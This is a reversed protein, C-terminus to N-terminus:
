PTRYSVGGTWGPRKPAASGPVARARAEVEDAPIHVGHGDERQRAVAVPGRPRSRGRPRAPRASGARPTRGRADALRSRRARRADQFRRARSPDDGRMCPRHDPLRPLAGGVGEQSAASARPQCGFRTRSADACRIPVARIPRRRGGGGAIGHALAPLGRVKDDAVADSNGVAEPTLGISVIEASACAFARASDARSSHPRRLDGAVPRSPQGVLARTYAGAEFGPAGVPIQRTSTTSSRM